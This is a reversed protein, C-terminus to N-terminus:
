LMRGRSRFTFGSSNDYEAGTVPAIFSSPTDGIPVEIPRAAHKVRALLDMFGSPPNLALGEFFTEVRMELADLSHMGNIMSVIFPQAWNPMVVTAYSLLELQVRKLDEAALSLTGSVSKDQVKGKWDRTLQVKSAAQNLERTTPQRMKAMGEVIKETQTTAPAGGPSPSPQATGTPVGGSTPASGGGRATGATVSGTGAQVVPARSV